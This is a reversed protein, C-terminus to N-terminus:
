RHNWRKIFRRYLQDMEEGASTRLQKLGRLERRDATKRVGPMKAAIDNRLVAYDHLEGLTEQFWRGDSVTKKRGSGPFKGFFEQVYRLRKFSLRLRHLVPEPVYM